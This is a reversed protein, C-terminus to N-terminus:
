PRARPIVRAGTFLSGLDDVSASVYAEADHPEPVIERHSVLLLKVLFLAVAVILFNRTCVARRPERIRTRVAERDM